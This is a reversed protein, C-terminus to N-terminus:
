AAVEEVSFAPVERVCLDRPWEAMDGGKKHMLTPRAGLQKVFTAWGFQHGDEVLGLMWEDPCPVANPGSAGGVILWHLRERQEAFSGLSVEGLLPEASIGRWRAKVCLLHPVRADATAQSTVSTMAIVNRPLGGPRRRSFDAMRKPRKTLVMWIHRRGHESEMPAFVERELYDDTVAASFIDSLDGVFICRPLADLWPKGDRYKGTLDRARAAAAIRGPIMRVEAFSRAYNGSRQFSRNLAFRQEHIAKAYCIARAPDRPNYLECGDCGSTPNVTDDCWEINTRQGM